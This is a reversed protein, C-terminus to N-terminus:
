WFLSEPKIQKEKKKNKKWGTGKQVAASEKYNRDKCLLGHYSGHAKENGHMWHFSGPSRKM